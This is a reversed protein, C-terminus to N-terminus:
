VISRVYDVEKSIIRDLIHLMERIRVDMKKGLSRYSISFKTELIGFVEEMVDHNLLTTYIRNRLRNSDEQIERRVYVYPDDFVMNWEINELFREVMKVNPTDVGGQVLYYYVVIFYRLSKDNRVGMYLLFPINFKMDGTDVQISVPRRDRNISARIEM